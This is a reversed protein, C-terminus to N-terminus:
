INRPETEEQPSQYSPAELTCIECTLMGFGLEKYAMRKIM